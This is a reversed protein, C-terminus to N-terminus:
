KITSMFSYKCAKFVEEKTTVIYISERVHKKPLLDTVVLKM